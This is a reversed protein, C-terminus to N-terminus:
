RSIKGRSVVDHIQEEVKREAAGINAGTEAGIRKVDGLKKFLDRVLDPRHEPRVEQERSM